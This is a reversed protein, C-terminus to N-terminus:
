CTHVCVAYLGFSLGVISHPVVLPVSSRLITPLFSEPVALLLLGAVPTLETYALLLHAASLTLCAVSAIVMRYSTRDMLLGVTPSLVMAFVYNLSSLWTAKTTKQHWKDSIFDASIADFLHEANSM